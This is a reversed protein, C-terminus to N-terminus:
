GVRSRVVCTEITGTLERVQLWAADCAEGLYVGAGKLSWGSVKAACQWICDLGSWRIM